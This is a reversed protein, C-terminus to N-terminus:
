VEFWDVSLKLKSERNDMNQFDMLMLNKHMTKYLCIVNFLRECCHVVAPVTKYSYHKCGRVGRCFM